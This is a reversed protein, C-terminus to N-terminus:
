HLVAYPELDDLKRQTMGGVDLLDDLSGYPGNAERFAVIRSALAPGIGPLTELENEDAVNLDVLQAPVDDAALPAATRRKRRGHKAARRHPSASARGRSGPAAFVAGKPPVAIEEGDTLPAALNVAVLDADPAPGGAMALADNARASAPLTYVGRRVVEGAVYVVVNGGPPAANRARLRRRRPDPSGAALVPPSEFAAAVPALPASAHSSRVAAAAGAVLVIGAFAPFRLNV